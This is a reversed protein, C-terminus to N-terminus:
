LGYGRNTNEGDNTTCWLGQVGDDLSSSSLDSDGAMMM